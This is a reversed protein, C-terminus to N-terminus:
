RVKFEMQLIFELDRGSMELLNCVGLTGGLLKAAARRLELKNLAGIEGHDIRELMAEIVGINRLLHRISHTLDFALADDGELGARKPYNQADLPAAKRVLQIAKALQM